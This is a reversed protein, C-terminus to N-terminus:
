RSARCKQWRSVLIQLTGLRPMKPQKSDLGSGRSGLQARFKRGDADAVNLHHQALAVGTVQGQGTMSHAWECLLGQHTKKGCDFILKM